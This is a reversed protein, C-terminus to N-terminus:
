FGKLAGNGCNSFWFGFSPAITVSASHEEEWNELVPTPQSDAVSCFSFYASQVDRSIECSSFEMPERGKGALVGDGDYAFISGIQPESLHELSTGMVKWDENIRCLIM